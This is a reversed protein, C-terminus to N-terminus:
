LYPLEYQTGEIEIIVTGAYAAPVSATAGATNITQTLTKSGPGVGTPVGLATKSALDVPYSLQQTERQRKWELLGAVQEQLKELLEKM